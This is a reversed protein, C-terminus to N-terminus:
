GIMRPARRLIAEAEAVVRAVLDGAPELASILDIGESAWVLAVDPDGDAQGQAFGERADADRREDERGSWAELFANRLARGTYPEPWAFGRAADFVQTRTTQDGGGEVLRAKAGETGLAEPTAYFRTGLVAGEAGLVLAAALGRGDMIGGAALVPTPSVADVVAPVLPLRAAGTAARRPGRPWSPTPTSPWPRRAGEVDQVQCILRTGSERVAAAYPAPDGFSLMVAAPGYGPVLRLVEDTAAWTILGVGWPRDTAAVVGLERKM